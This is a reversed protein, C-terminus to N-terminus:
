ILKRNNFKVLLLTYLNVKGYELKVYSECKGSKDKLSLDKGEVLTIAIKRGTRSAYNSSGNVSQQPRVHFNHSSHSGDSFQWEKVIFKVTLQLINFCTNVAFNRRFLRPLM